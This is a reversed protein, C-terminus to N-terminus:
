SRPELPLTMRVVTGGRPGPEVAITGHHDSVIREVITLGLGSGTAKTTFGPVFLNARQEPTLGPGDDAIVIEADDPHAIASVTVRGAPGIAELGNQILNVCARKLQDADAQLSADPGTRSFVLRGSEVDVRYLAELETVLDAIRCPAWQPAPFRAFETFEQLLRKLSEIEEGVTRAAEALIRSFDPKQQEYSRELDAISIAIPTLPNKIEHAVQRAMQSWAAQRESVMLRSRYDQLDRRMQELAAALTELERVSRLTLPEEWEGRSVRTSFTALAEVPASVQSSWLLGLAVAIALGALGLLASTLWLAAVARDTSATSILGLIQLGPASALGLPVARGLYPRHAVEIRTV